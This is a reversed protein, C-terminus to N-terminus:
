YKYGAYTLAKKGVDEGVEKVWWDVVPRLAKEFAATEKKTLRVPKMGSLAYFPILISEIQYDSCITGEKAYSRVEEYKAAHMIVKRVDEPWSNWKDDLVFIPLTLSAIPTILMYKCYEEVGRGQATWPNMLCGDVVGRQLAQPLEASPITVPVAGLAHIAKAEIKGSVRIKLGKMDAPKRVLKEKTWLFEPLTGGSTIQFLNKKKLVERQLKYLPTGMKLYDYSQSLSKWIPLSQIGLFPYSGLIYSNPIFMFDTTGARLGPLLAKAKLLTGGWYADIHVIGKGLKNVTDVFVKGCEYTAPYGVPIYAAWTLKM